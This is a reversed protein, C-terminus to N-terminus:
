IEQRSCNESLHQKFIKSGLREGHDASDRTPSDSLAKVVSAVPAVM